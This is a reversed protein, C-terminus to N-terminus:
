LNSGLHSLRLIPPVPDGRVVFPYCSHVGGRLKGRIAKKRFTTLSEGFRDGAAVLRAGAVVSYSWVGQRPSAGSLSSSRRCSPFSDSRDVAKWSSRSGEHASRILGERKKGKRYSM